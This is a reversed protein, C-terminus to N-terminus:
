RCSEEARRIVATGAVDVRGDAHVWSFRANWCVSEFVGSLLLHHDSWADLDGESAFAYDLDGMLQLHLEGDSFGGTVPGPMGSYAGGPRAHGPFFALHEGWVESAGQLRLLVADGSVCAPMAELGEGETCTLAAEWDGEPTLPVEPTCAILLLLSATRM